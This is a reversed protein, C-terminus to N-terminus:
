TSSATAVVEVFYAQVVISGRGGCILRNPLTLGDIRVKRMEADAEAGLM